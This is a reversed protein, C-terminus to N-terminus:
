PTAPRADRDALVVVDGAATQLWSAPVDASPPADLTRGCSRASTRGRLRRAPDPPRGAALGHRLDAGRRARRARRGLLPRQQRHERADAARPADARRARGSARQLRPAREARPRADRARLRRRGGRRRRVRPVRARAAVLRRPPDARQAPIGLPALFSREMWGYLSRRDGAPSAPTSTSSRWGCSRPTSARRARPARGADRYAGM